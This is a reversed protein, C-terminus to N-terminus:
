GLSGAVALMHADRRGGVGVLTIDFGHMTEFFALEKIQFVEGAAAFDKGFHIGVQQVEVEGPGVGVSPM